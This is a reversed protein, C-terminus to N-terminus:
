AALALRSEDYFACIGDSMTEVTFRQSVVNRLREARSAAAEPAALIEHIAGALGTVDDSEILATDSGDVIESIGGVNTAILPLGAAAAELVVYPLSEKRSPVIMCRGMTFADRAPKAGVFRVIAEIGLSQSLATLSDRDMGEGVITLTADRTQRVEAVAKLLVDVGKLERLEGIFLLDTADDRPVPSVFEDPLLGNFIVRRRIDTGGMSQIYRKQAFHSEFVIGDTASMLQRELGMFIFSAATGPEYNLSGGHPTYITTVLHGRRGLSRGALRAHAGGKAGHGHAIDIKLDQILERTARFASFDNLGIGRAMPTRHVGLSIAADLDALREETLSDTTQNDCLIAIEYGRRAQEKALDRVHRFLGGVPSRLCHLIRKATM